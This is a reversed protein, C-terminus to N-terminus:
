AAGQESWRTVLVHVRAVVQDVTLATSDIVIADSAAMLPSHTRSSDYQDRRQLAQSVEDLTVTEGRAQRELQRRRAREQLSADLYIKLDADPLVVTGIDRGVMVVSGAQETSQSGRRTCRMTRLRRSLAM